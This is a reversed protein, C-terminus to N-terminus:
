STAGPTERLSPRLLPLDYFKRWTHGFPREWLLHVAVGIAICFLTTLIAYPMGGQVKNVYFGGWVLGIQQCIYIPYSADGLFVLFGPMKASRWAPLVTGAVILLAPIGFRKVRWLHNGFAAEWNFDIPYFSGEWSLWLWWGIGTTLILLGLWPPATFRKAFEGLACGGAFLLFLPWQYFGLALMAACGWLGIHRAGFFLFVSLVGYFWMEYVLTWGHILVPGGSQRLFLISKWVQEISPTQGSNSKWYYEIISVFYYLPVVKWIRKVLFRSASKERDAVTSIIFGSIVFFVDVGVYGGPIWTFGAHFLIVSVVAVARLGDVERRYIM